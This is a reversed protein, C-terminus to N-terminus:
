EPSGLGGDAGEVMLRNAYPVLVPVLEFGPDLQAAVGECMMVTKLLLALDSPLRLRHARVVGMLDTLLPGLHLQELPTSAYRDVLRTLDDELVPRDVDECAIGLRLLGDAMRAADSAVLALLITGLGLSAEPAVSGVMGFDVFGLRGTPEVFVNGPHPDAHFFGREFVMSLYADAFTRAVAARDIGLADLAALDDVKVGRVREETIIDARTFEWFIKPVYMRDDGAFGASVLEANHGEQVYDLEARLTAAFERSLGVPDYRAAIASRHAAVGALRGLLELDINVQDVVRPRRVKVVVDSGDHLSAAHVQGISAAAIPVLDFTAFAEGLPRGLAHEVAAVIEGAPVTPAADQLRALEAEYEPSVLDPRTSLVQGLKMFTPGLSELTRRLRRPGVPRPGRRIRAVLWDGGLAVLNAALILVVQV